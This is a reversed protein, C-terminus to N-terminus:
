TIQSLGGFAVAAPGWIRLAWQPKGLGGKRCSGGKGLFEKPFFIWGPLFHRLMAALIVELGRGCGPGAAPFVAPHNGSGPLWPQTSRFERDGPRPRPACACRGVARPVGAWEWRRWACGCLGWWEWLVGQFNWRKLCLDKESSGGNRAPRPWLWNLFHTARELLCASQRTIDVEKGNAPTELPATIPRQAGGRLRQRIPRAHTEFLGLPESTLVDRIQLSAGPHSRYTAISAGPNRHSHNAPTDSAVAQKSLLCGM